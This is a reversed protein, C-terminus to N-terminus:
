FELGAEEAKSFKSWTWLRGFYRYVSELMPLDGQAIELYESSAQILPQSRIPVM